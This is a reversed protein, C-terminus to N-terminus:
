EAVPRGYALREAAYAEQAAVSPFARRFAAGRNAQMAALRQSNVNEAYEPLGGPIVVVVKREGRIRRALAPSISLTM